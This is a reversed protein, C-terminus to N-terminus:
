PWTIFQTTMTSSTIVVLVRGAEEVPVVRAFAIKGNEYRCYPGSCHMRLIAYNSSSGKFNMASAPCAWAEALTRYVYYGGGHDGRVRQSLPEGLRYETTGDFLSRYRFERGFGDVQVLAVKKYYHGGGERM